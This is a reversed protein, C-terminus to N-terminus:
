LAGTSATKIGLDDVQNQVPPSMFIVVPVTMSSHMLRLPHVISSKDLRVPTELRDKILYLFSGSM